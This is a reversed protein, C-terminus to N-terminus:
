RQHYGRGKKVYPLSKRYYVIISDQTANLEYLSSKAYDLGNLFKSAQDYYLMGLKHNLEVNNSDQELEQLYKRELAKFKEDAVLQASDSSFQDKAENFLASEQAMVSHHVAFVCIVIFLKSLRSLFILRRM